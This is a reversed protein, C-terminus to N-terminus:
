NLKKRRLVSTCGTEAYLGLVCIASAHWALELV